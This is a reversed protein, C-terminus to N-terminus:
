YVFLTLATLYNHKLQSLTVGVQEDM